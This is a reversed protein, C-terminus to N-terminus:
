FSIPLSIPMAANVIRLCLTYSLKTQWIDAGNTNAKLKDYKDNLKDNLKDYQNVM